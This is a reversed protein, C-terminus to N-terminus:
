LQGSTANSDSLVLNGGATGSIELAPGASATSNPSSTGIGVNGSSNIRMAESGQMEFTLAGVNRSDLAITNSAGKIQFIDSDAGRFEGIVGDIGLEVDLKGSPSTTGIGVNGSSDIRMRETGVTGLAFADSAGSSMFLVDTSPNAIQLNATPGQFFGIIGADSRQVHIPYSPSSTGIGLSEASADWFFKPTTGTDEYFSIDGSNDILMSTKSQNIFKTQGSSNNAITLEDTTGSGQLYFNSFGLQLKSTFSDPFTLLLQRYSDTSVTLGDMTATGTVDIGTNTTALKAANDYYLSVNSNEFARLMLKALSHRL